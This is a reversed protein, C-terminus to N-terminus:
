LKNKIKYSFLNGRTDDYIDDEVILVHNGIIEQLRSQNVRRWPGFRFFSDYSGGVVQDIIFSGFESEIKLHTEPSLNM